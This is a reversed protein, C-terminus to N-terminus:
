RTLPTSSTMSVYLISVRVQQINGRVMYVYVTYRTTSHGQGHDCMCCLSEVKYSYIQGHVYMCHVSEVKNYSYGQDHVCVTYLGHQLLAGPWSCACPTSVIYIWMCNALTWVSIYAAVLWISSRLVYIHKKRLNLAVKETWLSIGFYEWIVVKYVLKDNYM